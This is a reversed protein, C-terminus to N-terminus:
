YNCKRKTGVKKSPQIYVLSAAELDNPDPPKTGPPLQEKLENWDPIREAVTIYGTADVFKKFERNTVETADIWFGDVKVTHAPKETDYSEPDNIGMVFEVGPIWIMKEDQSGSYNDSGGGTKLDVSDVTESRLSDQSGFRSPKKECCNKLSDEKRKIKDSIETGSEGTEKKNCSFSLMNLFIIFTFCLIKRKSLKYNLNKIDSSIYM